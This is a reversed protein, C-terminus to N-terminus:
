NNLTKKLISLHFDIEKLTLDTDKTNDSILKSKYEELLNILGYKFIDTNYMDSNSVNKIIHNSVIKTLISKLISM